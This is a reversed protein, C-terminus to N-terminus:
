RLAVLGQMLSEGREVVFHGKPVPPGLKGIAADAAKLLDGPLGDLWGTDALREDLHKRYLVTREFLEKTTVGRENLSM